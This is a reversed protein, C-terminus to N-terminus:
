KKNKLMQKTLDKYKATRYKFKHVLTHCNPCLLAGNTYNSKGGDSLPVIHHWEICFGADYGCLMCKTGNRKILERKVAKM